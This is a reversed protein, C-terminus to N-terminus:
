RTLLGIEQVTVAVQVTSAAIIIHWCTEHVLLWGLSTGTKHQALPM